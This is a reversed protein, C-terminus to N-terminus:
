VKVLVWGGKSDCTWNTSPDFSYGEPVSLIQVRYDEPKAVFSVIGEADSRCVRSTNGGYFNMVVGPVPQQDVDRVCVNYCVATGNDPANFLYDVVARCQSEFSFSGRQTFAVGQRNVFLTGQFGADHTYKSLNEAYGMPFSLGLSAKYAALNEIPENAVAVIKVGGPVDQHIHELWSLETAGPSQGFVNLIVLDNTELMSSLTLTEGGTTIISLDPTSQASGSAFAVIVSLAVAMLAIIVIPKKM